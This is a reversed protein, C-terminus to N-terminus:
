IRPKPRSGANDQIDELSNLRTHAVRRGQKSKRGAVENLKQLSVGFQPFLGILQPRAKTQFRQLIISQRDTTAVASSVGTMDWGWPNVQISLGRRAAIARGSENSSM